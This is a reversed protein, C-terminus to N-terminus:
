FIPSHLSNMVQYNEKYYAKFWREAEPNLDGQLVKEALEPLREGIIDGVELKGPLRTANSRLVIRLLDTTICKLCQTARTTKEFHTEVVCAHFVEDSGVALGSLCAICNTHSCHKYIKNALVVLVNQAMELSAGDGRPSDDDDDDDDPLSNTFALAEAIDSDITNKFRLLMAFSRRGVNVRQNKPSELTIDEGRVINNHKENAM